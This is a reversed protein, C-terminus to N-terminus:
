TQEEENIKAKAIAENLLNRLKYTEKLTLIYVTFLGGKQITFYILEEGESASPDVEFKFGNITEATRVLKNM